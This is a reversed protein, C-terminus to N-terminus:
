ADYYFRYYIPISVTGGSADTLVVYLNTSDIYAYGTTGLDFTPSAEFIDGFQFDALPWIQNSAAYSVGDSSIMPEYWVKVTPVYGLNHPITVTTPTAFPVTATTTGALAIKQYNLGSFFQVKSYDIAMM